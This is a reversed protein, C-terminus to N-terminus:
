LPYATGIGQHFTVRSTSGVTANAYASFDIPMDQTVDCDLGEDFAAGQITNPTLTGSFPSSITLTSTVKVISNQQAPPTPIAIKCTIITTFIWYFTGAANFNANAITQTNTHDTQNIAFRFSAVLFNGSNVAVHGYNQIIVTTGVQFTNAPIIPTATTTPVIGIPNWLSTFTGSTNNSASQSVYVTFLPYANGTINGDLKELASLLTDDETVSGSSATFGDLKTQSLVAVKELASGVTDTVTISGLPNPTFKTLQTQRLAVCKEIASLVSDLSTITGLPDPTYSGLPVTTNQAQTSTSSFQAISAIILAVLAIALAIGGLVYLEVNTPRVNNNANSM